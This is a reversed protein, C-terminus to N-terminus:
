TFEFRESEQVITTKFPFGSAPVAEIMEMLVASGTFVVRENGDVEIQLHLCKGNGKGDYKSNVIRFSKVVIEKNVIQRMKIKEGSFGQTKPKINFQKFSNM